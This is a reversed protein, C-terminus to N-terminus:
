KDHTSRLLKNENKIQLYHSNSIISTALDNLGDQQTTSLSLSTRGELVGNINERSCLDNIANALVSATKTAIAEDPIRAILGPNGINAMIIDMGERVMISADRPIPAIHRPLITSQEVVARALDFDSSMELETAVGQKNTDGFLTLKNDNDDSESLAAKSLQLAQVRNAWGVLYPAMREERSNINDTLNMKRLTLKSKEKASEAEDIDWEIESLTHRLEITEKGELRMKLMMRNCELAQEVIFDDGTLWYICNSCGGQVSVFVEKMEDANKSEFSRMGKKCGDCGKGGLPCVGGDVYVMTSLNEAVINYNEGSVTHLNVEKGDELLQFITDFGSDIPDKAWKEIISRRVESSLTKFYGLTMIVTEHGAVFESVIHIPVGASILNSIGAVRLCHVDFLPTGDSKTFRYPLGQEKCVRDAEICLDNFLSTIKRKSIPAFANYTKGNREYSIPSTIDVFLPTFFPTNTLVDAVDTVRGRDETVHVYSIPTQNPCYQNVWKQQDFLVEYPRNLIESKEHKESSGPNEAVEKLYPWPIYYGDRSEPDWLQTKNSNVYINYDKEGAIYQDEVFQIVGTDCGAIDFHDYQLENKWFNQKESNDLMKKTEPCYLSEDLSGSDLWRVQVGRLPLLLLLILAHTRSPCFVTIYKEKDKDWIEVHDTGSQTTNLSREKAWQYTPVGEDDPSYLIDLMVDVGSQCIRKRHTKLSSSRGSFNVKNQDKFPNENTKGELKQNNVVIKYMMATGSWMTNKTKKALSEKTKQNIKTNLFYYFTDPKTFGASKLDSPKIDWPSTFNRNKIAWDILPTALTKKHSDSAKSTNNYLNFFDIWEESMTVNEKTNGGRKEQHIWDSFFTHAQKSTAYQLPFNTNYVENYKELIARMTLKHPDLNTDTSAVLALSSFQIPIDEISSINTSLSIRSWASTTVSVQGKVDSNIQSLIEIIDSPVIVKAQLRISERTIAGLWFDHQTGLKFISLYYNRMWSEGHCDAPLGATNEVLGGLMTNQTKRKKLTSLAKINTFLLSPFNSEQPLLFTKSSLLLCPLLHSPTNTFTKPSLHSIWDPQTLVFEVLDKVISNLKNTNNIKVLYNFYTKRTSTSLSALESFRMNVAKNTGSKFPIPTRKPVFEVLHISILYDKFENWLTDKILKRFDAFSKDDNIVIKTSCNFYITKSSLYGTCKVVKGILDDRSLNIQNKELEIDYKM